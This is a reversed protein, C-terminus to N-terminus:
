STEDIDGSIFHSELNELTTARRELYLRRDIVDTFISLREKHEGNEGISAAHLGIPKRSFAAQFKDKANTLNKDGATSTPKIIMRVHNHLTSFSSMYQRVIPKIDIKENIAALESRISSKFKKNKTIADIHINATASHRCLKKGTFNIWSTHYTLSHIPFDSHQTHNRLAALVRYGLSKDYQENTKKNFEEAEALSPEFISNLHQPIHDIYMKGASLLNVLSNNISHIDDVKDSWDYDQFLLDALAHDHLNKEFDYYNKLLLYYKEEIALADLAILRSKRIEEFSQHNITIKEKPNFTSELLFYHM